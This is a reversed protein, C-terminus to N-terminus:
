YWGRATKIADEALRRAQGFEWCGYAYDADHDGDLMLRMIYQLSKALFIEYSALDETETLEEPTDKLRQCEYVHWDWIASTIQDVSVIYKHSDLYDRLDQAYKETSWLPEDDDARFVRFYRIADVFSDFYSGGGWCVKEQGDKSDVYVQLNAGVFHQGTAENYGYAMLGGKSAPELAIATIHMNKNQDNLIDGDATIHGLIKELKEANNM